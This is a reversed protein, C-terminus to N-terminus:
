IRWGIIAIYVHVLRFLFIVIIRFFLFLRVQRSNSGRAVTGIFSKLKDYYAASFRGALPLDELELEAYALFSFPVFAEKVKKYRGIYNM